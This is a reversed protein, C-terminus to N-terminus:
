KVGFDLVPLSFVWVSRSDSISMRILNAAVREDRSKIGRMVTARKGLVGIDEAVEVVILFGREAELFDADLLAAVDRDV